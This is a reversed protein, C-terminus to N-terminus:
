VAWRLPSDLTAGVSLAWCEEGWLEVDCLCQPAVGPPERERPAARFPSEAVRACVNTALAAMWGASSTLWASNCSIKAPLGLQFM